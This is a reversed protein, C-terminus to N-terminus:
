RPRRAASGAVEVATNLPTQAADEPEECAGLLLAAVLALAVALLARPRHARGRARRRGPRAAVGDPRM